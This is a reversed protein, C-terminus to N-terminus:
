SGEACSFTDAAISSVKSQHLVVQDVGGFCTCINQVIEEDVGLPLGSLYVTTQAQDEALDKVAARRVAIQSIFPSGQRLKVGLTKWGDRGKDAM